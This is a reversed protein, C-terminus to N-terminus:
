EARTSKETGKSSQNFTAATEGVHFIMEARESFDVVASSYHAFNGAAFAFTASIVIGFVPVPLMVRCYLGTM